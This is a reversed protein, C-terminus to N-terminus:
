ATSTGTNNVSGSLQHPPKSPAEAVRQAVLAGDIDTLGKKMPALEKRPEEAAEKTANVIQPLIQLEDGIAPKMDRNVMNRQKDTKMAAVYENVLAARKSPDKIDLFSMNSGVAVCEFRHQVPNRTRTYVFPLSVYKTNTM